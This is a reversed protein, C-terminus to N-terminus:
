TTLGVMPMSCLMTWSAIRWTSSRPASTGQQTVPVIGYRNAESTVPRNAWIRLAEALPDVTPTM